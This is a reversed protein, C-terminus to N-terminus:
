RLWQMRAQDVPTRDGPNTDLMIFKWGAHEFTYSLETFEREYFDGLQDHSGRLAHRPRQLRDLGM